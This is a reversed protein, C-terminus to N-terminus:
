VMGRLWWLSLTWAVALLLFAGLVWRWTVRNYDIREAM